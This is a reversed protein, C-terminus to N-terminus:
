IRGTAYKSENKLPVLARFADIYKKSIFLLYWTSNGKTQKYVKCPIRNTLLFNQVFSIAKVSSNCLAISTGSRGGDTDFFGAIFSARMKAPVSSVFDIVTDSKKGSSFGFINTFIRHIVKSNVLLTVLESKKAAYYKNPFVGFVEDFLSPLFVDSYHTKKKQIKVRFRRSGNPRMTAGVNGDGFIVGALYFLNEDLKPLKVDLKSARVSLWLIRSIDFPQRLVVLPVTSRGKLWDAVSDKSYNYRAVVAMDLDSKSVDGLKARIFNCKDDTNDNLMLPNLNQASM